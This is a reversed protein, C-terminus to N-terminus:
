PLELLALRAGNAITEGVYPTKSFSANVVITLTQQKGSGSGGCGALLAAVALLVLIRRM